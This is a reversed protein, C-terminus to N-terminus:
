CATSAVRCTLTWERMGATLMATSEQKARSHGLLGLAELSLKEAAFAQM